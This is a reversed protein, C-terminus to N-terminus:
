SGDPQPLGRSDRPITAPPQCQQLGNALTRTQQANLPQEDACGEKKGNAREQARPSDGPPELPQSLRVPLQPVLVALQARADGTELWGDGLRRRSRGSRRRRLRPEGPSSSQGATTASAIVPSQLFVVDDHDAGPRAAIDGGDPGRLETQRDGDDFFLLREAARAEHPAANRGLRQELVRVRQLDNLM